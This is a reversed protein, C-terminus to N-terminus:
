KMSCNCELNYFFNFIKMEDKFRCNGFGSVDGPANLRGVSCDTPPLPGKSKHREINSANSPRRKLFYFVASDDSSEIPSYVLSVKMALIEKM